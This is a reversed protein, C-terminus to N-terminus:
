ASPRQVGLNFASGHRIQLGYEACIVGNGSKQAAIKAAPSCAGNRHQISIKDQIIDLGFAKMEILEFALQM